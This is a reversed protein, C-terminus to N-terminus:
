EESSAFQIRFQESSEKPNKGDNANNSFIYSGSTHRAAQHTPTGLAVKTM